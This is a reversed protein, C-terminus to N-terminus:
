GGSAKATSPPPAGIVSVPAGDRIKLQGDTVVADGEAIGATVEVIGPQRLGLDVKTLQAKGDAVKFVYNGDSRPVIAQEPVTLANPREGLQLSVRAFMGPKLRVGPNPVKARLLVTRTQEDVAPEIAYITGEFREDPYADVVVSVKQGEGIRRLYTEPVRFDLKLTGIGELRAIDQGKNVYAGPSVQRVGAVGDFPARLVLKDLRAKREALRARSANLNERAEDLAQESIFNKKNLEQARELRQRNLTVESDAAAVQAATEAYDMTVLKAGKAVSQGETFHIEDIRGDLEPRIIVSENALLTGVASVQERLTDRQVKAVKVPVGRPPGGPQAANGPPAGSTAAPGSKSGGTRWWWGAGALLALALAFILSKQVVPKM